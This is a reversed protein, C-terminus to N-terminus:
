LYDQFLDELKSLDPIKDLAYNILRKYALSLSEAPFSKVVEKIKTKQEETGPARDVAQLLRDLDVEDFKIIVKGLIARLGGDGELFDIGKSTIRVFGHQVRFNESPIDRHGDVAKVLGHENLYCLNMTLSKSNSSHEPMERIPFGDPYNERLKLLISLQLDRNISM